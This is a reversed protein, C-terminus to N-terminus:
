KSDFLHGSRSIGSLQQQYGSAQPIDALRAKWTRLYGSSVTPYSLRYFRGLEPVPYRMGKVSIVCCQNRLRM